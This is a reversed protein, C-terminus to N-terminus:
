QPPFSQHTHINMWQGDRKELVVTIAYPGAELKNGKTDYQTYTADAMYLASTDSTMTVKERLNTIDQRAVGEFAAEYFTIAEERSWLSFGAMIYTHDAPAAAFMGALNATRANDWMSHVTELVETHDDNAIAIPMNFSFALILATLTPKLKM